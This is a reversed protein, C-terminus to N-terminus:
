EDDEETLADVFLTFLSKLLSFSVSEYTPADGSKHRVTIIDDADEHLYFEGPNDIVKLDPM